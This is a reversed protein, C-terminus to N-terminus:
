KNIIFDPNHIYCTNKKEEYTIVLTTDVDAHNRVHHMKVSDHPKVQVPYDGIFADIGQAEEEANSFRHPLDFYKASALVSYYEGSMGFHTKNYALDEIYMRCLDLTFVSHDVPMKSLMEWVKNASQEIKNLGDCHDNYFNEWDKVGKEGSQKLFDTFQEKMSGVIKVRTAQSNQTAINLIPKAYLPFEYRDRLVVPQFDKNTLKIM